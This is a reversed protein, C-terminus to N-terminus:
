NLPAAASGGDPPSSAPTGLRGARQYKDMAENFANAFWANQGTGGQQQAATPHIAGPVANPGTTPLPVPAPVAPGRRPPVPHLRTEGSQPVTDPAAGALPLSASAASHLATEASQSSAQLATSAAGFVAFGASQPVASAAPELLSIPRQLRPTATTPAAGITTGFVFYDGATSVGTTSEATTSTGASPPTGTPPPLDSTAVAIRPAVLADAEATSRTASPAEAVASSSDGGTFLAIVNDSANMGTQDEIVLNALACGVGIIGGYLAGGVIDAVAGEKDGTLHQYLTNILPIHQLPNIIDLLDSFSPGDSDNFAKITSSTGTTGGGSPPGPAPV